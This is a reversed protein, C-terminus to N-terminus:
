DYESEGNCVSSTYSLMHASGRFLFDVLVGSCLPVGCWMGKCMGMYGMCLAIYLVFYFLAMDNIWYLPVQMVIVYKAPVHM